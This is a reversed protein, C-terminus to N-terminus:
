YLMLLFLAVIAILIIITVAILIVILSRDTSFIIPIPGLLVIGGGKVEKEAESHAEVPTPNYERESVFGRIFGLMILILSLIIFLAGLIALPGKGYFVPIFLVISFVGEYILANIIILAVGAIFLLFAFKFYKNAHM